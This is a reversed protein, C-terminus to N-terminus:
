PGGPGSPPDARRVRKGEVIRDGVAITRFPPDELYELQGNETRVVVTVYHRIGTTLTAERHKIDVVEGTVTSRHEARKASANFVAVALAFWVLGVLILWIPVAAV